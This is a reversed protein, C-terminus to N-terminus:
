ASPPENGVWVSGAAVQPINWAATTTEEKKETVSIPCNKVRMFFRM